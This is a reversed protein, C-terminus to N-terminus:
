RFYPSSFNPNIRQVMMGPLVTLDNSNVWFFFGYKKLPWEAMGWVGCLDWQTPYRKTHSTLSGSTAQLVPCVQLIM